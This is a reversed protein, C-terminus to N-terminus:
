KPGLIARRLVASIKGDKLEIMMYTRGYFHLQNDGTQMSKLRSAM